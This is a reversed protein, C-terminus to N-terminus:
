NKFVETWMRMGDSIVTVAGSHVTDYIRSNVANLRELTSEAPHGYRNM